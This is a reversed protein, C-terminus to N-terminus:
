EDKTITTKEEYDYLFMGYQKLVEAICTIKKYKDLWITPDDFTTTLNAVMRKLNPVDKGTFVGGVENVGDIFWQPNDRTARTSIKAPAKASVIPLSITNNSVKTIEAMTPQVNSLSQMNVYYMSAGTITHARCTAVGPIGKRLNRYISAKPLETASILENATVGSTDNGGVSILYGMILSQAHNLDRM